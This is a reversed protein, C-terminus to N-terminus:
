NLRITLAQYVELKEALCEEFSRGKEIPMSPTVAPAVNTFVAKGREADGSGGARAEVLGEGNGLASLSLLDANSLKADWHVMRYQLPPM